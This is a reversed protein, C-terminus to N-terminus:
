TVQAQPQPSQPILVAMFYYENFKNDIIEKLLSLNFRIYTFSIKQVGGIDM